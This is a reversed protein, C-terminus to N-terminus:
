KIIIHSHCVPRICYRMSLLLCHQRPSGQPPVVHICKNNETKERRWVQAGGGGQCLIRTVGSAASVVAWTFVSMTTSMPGMGVGDMWGDMCVYMCVYM